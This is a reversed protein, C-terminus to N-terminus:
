FGVGNWTRAADRASQLDIMADNILSCPPPLEDVSTGRLLAAARIRCPPCSRYFDRGYAIEDAHKDIVKLAKFGNVLAEIVDESNM